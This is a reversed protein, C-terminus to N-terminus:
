ATVQKLYTSDTSDASDQTKSATQMEAKRRIALEKMLQRLEQRAAVQTMMDIGFEKLDLLTMGQPYLERFIARESFGTVVRFNLKQQLARLASNFNEKNDAGDEAYTIRNRIVVWDIPSLGSRQRLTKQEWVMKSYHSPKGVELTSPNVEALVAFDVFSENLPTILMDAAFHARRSLPTDNGPCDLIM